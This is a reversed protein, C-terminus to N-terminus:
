EPSPRPRKNQIALPTSCATASIISPSPPSPQCFRASAVVDYDRDDDCLDGYVHAGGVSYLDVDGDVASDDEEADRCDDDGGAKGLKWTTTDFRRGEFWEKRTNVDIVSAMSRNTSINCSIDEIM